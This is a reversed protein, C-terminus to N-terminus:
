KSFRPRRKDVRHGSQNINLGHYVDGQGVPDTGSLSQLAARVNCVFSFSTIFKSFEERCEFEDKCGFVDLIEATENEFLRKLFLESFESPVKVSGDSDKWIKAIADKKDLLYKHM